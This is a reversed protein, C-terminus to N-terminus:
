SVSSIWWNSCRGKDGEERRSKDRRWAYPIRTRLRCPRKGGDQLEKVQESGGGRLPLRLPGCNTHRLDLPRDPVPHNVFSSKEYERGMQGHLIELALDLKKEIRELREARLTVETQLKAISEAHTGQQHYFLGLVTFSLIFALVIWKSKGNLVEGVAKRSVM